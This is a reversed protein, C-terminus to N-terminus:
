SAHAPHEPYRCDATSGGRGLAQDNGLRSSYTAALRDFYIATADPVTLDESEAFDRVDSMTQRSVLVVVTVRGGSNITEQAVELASEGDLTPEVFAVIHEQTKM